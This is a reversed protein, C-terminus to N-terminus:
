VSYLATLDHLLTLLRTVIDISTVCAVCLTVLNDINDCMSYM